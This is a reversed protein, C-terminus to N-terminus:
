CWQAAIASRSSRITAEEEGRRHHRQVAQADDGDAHVSPLMQQLRGPLHRIPGVMVLMQDEVPGARFRQQTVLQRIVRAQTEDTHITFPVPMEATSVVQGKLQSAAGHQELEIGIAPRLGVQIRQLQQPIVSEAAEAASRITAQPLPDEIAGQDLGHTSEIFEQDTIAEIVLIQPSPHHSNATALTGGKLRELEPHDAMGGQLADTGTGGRRHRREELGSGLGLLPGAGHGITHQCRGTRPRGLAPATAVDPICGAAAPPHIHLRHQPGRDLHIVLHSTQASRQKPSIQQHQGRRQHAQQRRPQQGPILPTADRRRTQMPQNPKGQPWDPAPRDPQQLQHLLQPPPPGTPIAALFLEARGVAATIHFRHHAQQFAHRGRLSLFQHVPQQKLTGVPRRLHRNLNRQQFSKLMQELQRLMLPGIGQDSQTPGM